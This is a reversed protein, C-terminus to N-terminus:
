RVKEPPMNLLYKCRLKRYIYRGGFSWLLLLFMGAGLVEPPSYYFIVSLMMFVATRYLKIRFFYGTLCIAYLPILFQCVTQMAGDPYLPLNRWNAHWPMSFIVMFLLGGIILLKQLKGTKNWADSAAIAMLLGAFAPFVFRRADCFTHSYGCFFLIVPISLLILVQQNFRRRMTWLAACGIAFIPLNAQLLYRMFTLKSFTHWTFGAAPRDLPAYEPYHLVYGFTLPSGFQITNCIFQILFAAIFCGTSCLAACIM